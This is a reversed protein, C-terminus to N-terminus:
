GLSRVAQTVLPGGSNGPNLAADTQIVDDILRGNSARLSRGLASVVGATVTHQLGLPNGIAIAIQGVAAQRFRCLEFPRLGPEYIRLSQSIPLRTQVGSDANVVRGDSFASSSDTAHEIVHHNTLSSLRRRIDSLGLGTGPLFHRATIQRNSDGKKIGPNSWQIPLLAWLALACHPFIWGPYCSGSQFHFDVFQLYKM